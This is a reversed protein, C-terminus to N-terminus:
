RGRKERAPSDAAGRRDACGVCGHGDGKKGRERIKWYGMLLLVGSVMSVASSLLMAGWIDAPHAAGSAQRISLVTTPLLQFGANNVVLLLALLRLGGEGHAALRKAASVGPPTAANGLGLVNAALNMGIETWCQADPVMKSHKGFRKRVTEGLKGVDGTQLLIEMVGGWLTMTGLLTLMLSVGSEATSLLASATADVRNLPIALLLSVALTAWFIKGM